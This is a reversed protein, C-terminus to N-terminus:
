SLVTAVARHCEGQGNVRAVGNRCVCNRGIGSADGMMYGGIDVNVGVGGCADDGELQGRDGSIWINSM